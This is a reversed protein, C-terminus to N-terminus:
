CGGGGGGDGGNRSVAKSVAQMALADLPPRRESPRDFEITGSSMATRRAASARQGGGCIMLLGGAMISALKM